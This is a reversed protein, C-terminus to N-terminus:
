FELLNLNLHSHIDSAKKKEGRQQVHSCIEMSVFRVHNCCISFFLHLLATSIAVNGASFRNCELVRAIKM